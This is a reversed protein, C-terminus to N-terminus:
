KSSDPKASSIRAGVFRGLAVDERFNLGTHCLQMYHQMSTFIQGKSENQRLRGNMMDLKSIEQSNSQHVDCQVNYVFSYLAYM